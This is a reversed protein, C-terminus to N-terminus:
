IPPTKLSDKLFDNILSDTSEGDQSATFCAYFLQHLDNLNHRESIRSVTRAYQKVMHRFSKEITTAEKAYTGVFPVIGKFLSYLEGSWRTLGTCTVYDNANLLRYLDFQAQRHIEGARLEFELRLLDSFPDGSEKGKEYLRVFVPKNKRTQASYFTHELTQGNNSIIESPKLNKETYFDALKSRYDHYDGRFDLALDLRSCRINLDPIDNLVSMVKHGFDNANESSLRVVCSNEDDILSSVVITPQVVDNDEISLHVTSDHRKFDIGQRFYLGLKEALLFGLHYTPINTVDDPSAVYVFRLELWDLKLNGYNDSM